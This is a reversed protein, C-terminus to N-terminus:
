LDLPVFESYIKHLFDLIVSSLDQQQSLPSPPTLAAHASSVEKQNSNIHFVKKQLKNTNFCFFLVVQLPPALHFAYYEKNTVLLYNMCLTKSFFCIYGNEEATADNGNSSSDLGRAGDELAAIGGGAYSSGSLGREGVPGLLEKRALM